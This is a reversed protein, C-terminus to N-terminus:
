AHPVYLEVYENSVCRFCLVALGRPDVQETVPFHPHKVLRSRGQGSQEWVPQSCKCAVIAISREGTHDQDHLNNRVLSLDDAEDLVRM